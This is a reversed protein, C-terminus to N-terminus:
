GLFNRELPGFLQQTPTHTNHRAPDRGSAQLDLPVGVVRLPVGVVRLPVGLRFPAFLDTAPVM